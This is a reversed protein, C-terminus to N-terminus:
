ERRLMRRFDEVLDYGSRVEAQKVGEVATRLLELHPARALLESFDQVVATPGNDM